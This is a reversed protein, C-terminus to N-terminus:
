LFLSDTELGKEGIYLDPPPKSKLKFKFQASVFCEWVKPKIGASKMEEENYWSQSMNKKWYYALKFNEYLPNNGFYFYRLSLPKFSEVQNIKCSRLNLLWLFPLNDLGKLTEIPNKDLFLVQLNILTDLGKIESIQNNSLNLARLKTLNKLGKIKTIDKIRLSSLDLTSFGYKSAKYDRGNYEVLSNKALYEIEAEKIEEISMRAYKELKKTNSEGLIFRLQFCIPNKLLSLNVLHDKNMFSEVQSIKNNTLNLKRLKTLSDLGKIEEIKNAELNLEELNILTELGTIENISNFALKLEKLDKLAEIGKIKTIHNSTLSLKSLNRLVELGETESISNSSLNLVQLQNLNEIGKIESIKKIKKGSLNLTLLNKKKKVKYEKGNLTISM